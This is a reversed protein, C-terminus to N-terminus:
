KPKQEISEVSAPKATLKEPAPKDHWVNFVQVGGKPAPLAGQTEEPQKKEATKKIAATKPKGSQAYSVGFILIL